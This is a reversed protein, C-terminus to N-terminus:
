LVQCSLSEAVKMCPNILAAGSFSREVRVKAM